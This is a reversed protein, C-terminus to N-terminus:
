PAAGRRPLGPDRLQGHECHDVGPHRDRHDLFQDGARRDGARRDWGLYGILRIRVGRLGLRCALVASRGLAGLPGRRDVVLVPVALGFLGYVVPWPLWCAVAGIGACGGALVAVTVIGAVPRGRWTLLARTGPQGGNVAAAAATAAIGGLLAIITAEAAYGVGIMLWYEALRDGYPPFYSPPRVIALARLPYLALQEIAALVAATGLLATANRRLLGVAADLLEGATLPRLPVANSTPSRV